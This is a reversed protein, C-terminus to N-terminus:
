KRGTKGKKGGEKVSKSKDVTNEIIEPEPKQIVEEVRSQKTVITQIDRHAQSAEDRLFSAPEEFAGTSFHFTAETLWPEVNIKRVEQLIDDTSGVPATPLDDLATSSSDLIKLFPLTTFINQRYEHMKCIPCVLSPDHRQFCLSRLTKVSQLPSISTLTEIPNGAVSLTELCPSHQIGDLSKILNSDVILIKLKQLQAFPAISEISNHSINIESLGSLHVLFSLTTIKRNLLSVKTICAPDFQGTQIRLEEIVSEDIPSVKIPDPESSVLFM